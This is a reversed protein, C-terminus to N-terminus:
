GKLIENMKKAFGQNTIGIAKINNKGVAISLEESSEIFGYMVHYYTCKDIFRKKTNDSADNAIVVYKCQGNRITKIITEGIVISRSAAALGLLGTYKNM